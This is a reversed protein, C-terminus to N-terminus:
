VITLIMDGTDVSDGTKVHIRDITGEVPAVIENEMKMAELICLVQNLSVSDGEGVKMDYIQGPMPSTVKAGAESVPASVAPQKPAPTPAPAAVTKVPSAAVPAEAKASSSVVAGRERVEVDYVKGNVSISYARM